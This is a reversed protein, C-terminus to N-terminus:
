LDDGLGSRVRGPLAGLADDESDPIEWSQERSCERSLGVAPWASPGEHELSKLFPQAVGGLDM